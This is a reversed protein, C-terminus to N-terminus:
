VIGECSDYCHFPLQTPVVSVETSIQAGGPWQFSLFFATWHGETVNPRVRWAGDSSLHTSRWEVGQSECGESTGHGCPCVEARASVFRFDMRHSDCSDAQWLRVQPPSAVGDARAVIAGDEEVSWTVTPLQLDAQLFASIMPALERVQAGGVIHKSNPVTLMWKPGPVAQWWDKANDPVFFDDNGANIVFKSISSVRPLYFYPDTINLFSQGTVSDLYNGLLGKEFYPKAAVPFGGLEKQTRRLVARLNLPRAISVIGRVRPDVSATNWCLLGRKSTGMLVFSQIKLFQGIVDMAKIAAKTMPLELLLPALAGHSDKFSAWSASLSGDEVLPQTPVQGPKKLALYEAPVNFLVVTHRRAAIAIEAAARVDEDSSSVSTSSANVSGYFGLAAYLLCLDQTVNSPTIVVLTHNWTDPTVFNSLWRQSTMELVSGKWGPGSMVKPTVHWHFAGDDTSVYEKLCDWGSCKELFSLSPASARKLTLSRQLLELHAPCDPCAAVLPILWWRM